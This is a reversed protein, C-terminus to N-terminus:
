RDSYAPASSLLRSAARAARGPIARWRMGVRQGVARRALRTGGAAASCRARWRAPRPVRTASRTRWAEAEAQVDQWGAAAAHRARPAVLGLVAGGRLVDVGQAPRAVNRLGPCVPRRSASPYEHRDCTFSMSPTLSFWGTCARSAARRALLRWFGGLGPLCTIGCLLKHWIRWADFFM